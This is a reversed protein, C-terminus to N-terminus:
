DTIQGAEKFLLSKEVHMLAPYPLMLRLPISFGGGDGLVFAMVHCGEMANAQMCMICSVLVVAEPFLLAQRWEDM